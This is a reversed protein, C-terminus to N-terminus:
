ILEQDDLFSDETPENLSARLKERLLLKEQVPLPLETFLILNKQILLQILDETVRALERDSVELAGRADDGSKLGLFQMVEKNDAPLFEELGSAPEKLLAVIESKANRIIYPM